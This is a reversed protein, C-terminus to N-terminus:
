KVWPPPGSQRHHRGGGDRGAQVMAKVHRCMDGQAAGPSTESQCAARETKRRVRSSPLWGNASIFSVRLRKICSVHM